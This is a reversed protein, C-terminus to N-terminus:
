QALSIIENILGQYSLGSDMMLMPFMSIDTFGPLTNIENIYIRGRSLFFDVRAFGQCGALRYIKEALKRIEKTQAPTIKAPVVAQAEGKKYKDEYDYFDKALRLEGPRSVLLKKNGMVAVEIEKPSDLGEEIVIKNDHKLAAKIAPALGSSKVVRTIGISSGSNAPKIYLPFELINKIRDLERKIEAPNFAFYDLVGYGVQRINNATMATKFAAKDMCLASSLVRCGCYKIKQSELLSQLVGDEGYKGHTMLLAAEFIKSFDELGIQRNAAPQLRKIDKVLYFCGDQKRWYILALKYKKYDFNKVVNGASVVSVDHENSLGGFFLGITKM